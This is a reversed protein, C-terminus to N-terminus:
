LFTCEPFLASKALFEIDLPDKASFLPKEVYALSYSLALDQIRALCPYPVSLKLQFYPYVTESIILLVLFYNTINVKTLSQHLETVYVHNIM